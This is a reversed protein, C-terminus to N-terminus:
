RPVWTDWEDPHLKPPKKVEAEEIDGLNLEQIAEALLAADFMDDPINEQRRARGRAWHALARVRKLQLAGLKFGQQNATRGAMSIAMDRIDKDTMEAFDAVNQFGDRAFANLAANGQIGCVLLAQNIPM